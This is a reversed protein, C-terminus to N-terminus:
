KGVAGKPKNTCHLREFEITLGANESSVNAFRTMMAKHDLVNVKQYNTDGM